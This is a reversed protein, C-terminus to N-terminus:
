CSGKDYIRTLKVHCAKPIFIVKGHGHCHDARRGMASHWVSDEHCHGFRGGRSHRVFHHCDRGHDVTNFQRRSAAAGQLGAILFFHRVFVPGNHPIFTFCKSICNLLTSQFQGRGHEQRHRRWPSRRPNAALQRHGHVLVAGLSPHLRGPSSLSIHHARSM